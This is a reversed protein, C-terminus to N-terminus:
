EDWSFIEDCYHCKYIAKERDLLEFRHVIERENSTICRPNKCRMIGEVQEPLNLDVKRAVKEDEIINITMHPDFAGLATLDIDIINEIKIIDKQGMRNSPANIILAVPYDHVKNLELYNFIKLGLGAKIHDIVIGKKISNITLM